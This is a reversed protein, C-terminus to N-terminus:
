KSVNEVLYKMGMLVYRAFDTNDYVVNCTGHGFGNKYSLDTTRSDKVYPKIFQSPRVGLTKCWFSIIKGKDMDKYLHLKITLRDKSVGLLTLWKIFFKLMAPDTNGLAVTSIKTKGGEAWYLAFGLLFLERKSISGIDTGSKKYADDLKIQRKKAMTNRFNEIRKPNVDRLLRIREPSLPYPRLWESLTSKSIGLKMKIQSYSYGKKRLAIAKSKRNFDAM